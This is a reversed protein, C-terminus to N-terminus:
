GSCVDRWCRCLHRAPMCGTQTFSATEQSPHTLTNPEGGHNSMTFFHLTERGRVRERYDCIQLAQSLTCPGGMIRRTAKSSATDTPKNRSSKAMTGQTGKVCAHTIETTALSRLQAFARALAARAITIDSFVAKATGGPTM